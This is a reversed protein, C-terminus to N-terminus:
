TSGEQNGVGSKAAGQQEPVIGRAAVKGPPLGFVEITDPEGFDHQLLGPHFGNNGVVMKKQLTKGGDFAQGGRRLLLHECGPAAQAIVAARAIQM